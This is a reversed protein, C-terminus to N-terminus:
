LTFLTMQRASVPSISITSSLQERSTQQQIKVHRIAHIVFSVGSLRLVHRKVYSHAMVTHETESSIDINEVKLSNQGGGGADLKKKERAM